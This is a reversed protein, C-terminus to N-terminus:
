HNLINKSPLIMGALRHLWEISGELWEIPTRLRETKKKARIEWKGLSGPLPNLDRGIDLSVHQAKRPAARQM